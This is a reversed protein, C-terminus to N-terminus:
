IKDVLSESEKALIEILKKIWYSKVLIINIKLIFKESESVM